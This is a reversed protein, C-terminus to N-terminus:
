YKRAVEFYIVISCFLVQKAAAEMMEEKSMGASGVGSGFECVWNHGSRLSDKLAPAILPWNHNAVM